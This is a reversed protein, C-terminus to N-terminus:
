PLISNAELSKKQENKQLTNKNLKQFINEKFFQQLMGIQYSQHKSARNHKSPMENSSPFLIHIIFYKFCGIIKLNPHPFFFKNSLFKLQKVV